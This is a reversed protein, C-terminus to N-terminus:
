VLNPDSVCTHEIKPVSVLEDPIPGSLQRCGKKKFNQAPEPPPPKRYKRINEPNSVSTTIAILHDSFPSIKARNANPAASYSRYEMSGLVATTPSRSHCEAALGEQTLGRFRERVRVRGREGERERERSDRGRGSETTERGGEESCSACYNRHTTSDETNHGKGASKSVVGAPPSGGMELFAGSSDKHRLM